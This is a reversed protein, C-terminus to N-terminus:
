ACRSGHGSRTPTSLRATQGPLVEWNYVTIVRYWQYTYPGRGGTVAATYHM